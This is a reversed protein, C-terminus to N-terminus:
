PMREQAMDIRAFLKRDPTYVEAYDDLDYLGDPQVLRYRRYVAGSNLPRISAPTLREHGLAQLLTTGTVPTSCPITHNNVCHLNVYQM